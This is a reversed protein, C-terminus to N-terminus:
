RFISSVVGTQCSPPAPQFPDGGFLGYCVRVPLQRKSSGGQKKCPSKTLTRPSFGALCFVSPHGEQFVSPIKSGTFLRQIQVIMKAETKM